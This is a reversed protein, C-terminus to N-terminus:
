GGVFEMGANHCDALATPHDKIAGRHEIQWYCLEGASDMNIGDFFYKMTLLTCDFLRKGRTAGASLFYGKRQARAPGLDQGAKRTLENKMYLAQTRDILLKLQGSVNYFFIPSAVVIRTAAELLPYVQTMDDTVSCQGEKDCHGCELCGGLNLDRVYLRQVEGGAQLAGDLFRNLMLDTNGGKRPSGYIGVVLM